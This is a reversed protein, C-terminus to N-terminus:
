YSSNYGQWPKGPEHVAIYQPFAGPKLRGAGFRSYKRDMPAVFQFAIGHRVDDYICARVEQMEQVSQRLHKYRKRVQAYASHTTIGQPTSFQPSTTFIEVVSSGRYTVVLESANSKNQYFDHKGGPQADSPPGLRRHVETRSMGLRVRGISRGAIITSDAAGAPPVGCFMFLLPLLRFTHRM